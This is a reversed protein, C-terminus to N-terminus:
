AACRWVSCQVLGNRVACRWLKKAKRAAVVHIHAALAITRGKGDEFSEGDAAEDSKAEVIKLGGDVDKDKEEAATGCMFCATFGNGCADVSWGGTAAAAAAAGDAATDTAAPATSASASATASPSATTPLDEAASQFLTDRARDTAAPLTTHRSRFVWSFWQVRFPIPLPIPLCLM